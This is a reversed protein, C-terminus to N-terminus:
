GLHILSSSCMIGTQLTSKTGATLTRLRKLGSEYEVSLKDKVHARQLKDRVQMGLHTYSQDESFHEIVEGAQLRVSGCKM